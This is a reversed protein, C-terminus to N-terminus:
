YHYLLSQRGVRRPGRVLLQLPGPTISCNQQQTEVCQSCVLGPYGLRVLRREVAPLLNNKLDAEFEEISQGDMGAAGKNRKVSKYAEWV